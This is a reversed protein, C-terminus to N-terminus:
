LVVVNPYRNRVKKVDYKQGFQPRLARSREVLRCDYDTELYGHESRLTRRFRFSGDGPTNESKQDYSKLTPDSNDIVAAM